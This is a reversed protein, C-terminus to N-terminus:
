SRNRICIFYITLGAIIIAPLIHAPLSFATSENDRSAKEDTNLQSTATCTVSDQSQTVSASRSVTRNRSRVKGNVIKIKRTATPIAIADPTDRHNNTLTHNAIAHDARNHDALTYPSSTHYELTDFDLDLQALMSDTLVELIQQRGVHTLSTTTAAESRLSRSSRCSGFILIITLFVLFMLLSRGMIFAFSTTDIKRINMAQHKLHYM